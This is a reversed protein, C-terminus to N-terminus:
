RKRREELLLEVVDRKPAKKVQSVQKGIESPSESPAITDFSETKQTGRLIAIPIRRDRVEIVGCRRVFRLYESLKAKLETSSVSKM